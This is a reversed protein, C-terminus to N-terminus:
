SGNGCLALCHFLSLPIIAFIYLITRSCLIIPMIFSIFARQVSGLTEVFSSVCPASQFRKWLILYMRVTNVRFLLCFLHQEFMKATPCLVQFRISCHFDLSGGNFLDNLFIPLALASVWAVFWWIFLAEVIDVCWPLLFLDFGIWIDVLFIFEDLLIHSNSSPHEIVRHIYKRELTKRFSSRWSSSNASLGFLLSKVAIWCLTRLYLYSNRASSFSPLLFRLGLISVYFPVRLVLQHYALIYM